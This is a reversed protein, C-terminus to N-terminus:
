VDSDRPIHSDTGIVSLGDTFGRVGTVSLVLREVLLRQVDTEVKGTVAVVGKRATVDLLAVEIREDNDLQTTVKEELVDDAIEQPEATPSLEPGGHSRIAPERSIDVGVPGTEDFNSETSGYPANRSAPLRDEDAYPWGEDINRDEYDRYDEERVTEKKDDKVGKM